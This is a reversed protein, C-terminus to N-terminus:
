PLPPVAGVTVSALTTTPWRGGRRIPPSIVSSASAARVATAPTASAIPSDTSWAASPIRAITLSFMAPASRTIETWRPWSGRSNASTAKPPAPGSCALATASSIPEKGTITGGEGPRSHASPSRTASKRLSNACVSIRRVWSAPASSTLPMRSSSSPLARAQISASDIGGASCDTSKTASM